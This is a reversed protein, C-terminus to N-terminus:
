GAVEWIEIGNEDYVKKFSDSNKLLFLLGEQERTWVLGKKMEQNIWIYKINYESLLASTNALRRSYLMTNYDVWISEHNPTKFDDMLVKNKSVYQIWFGYSHHSLVVDEPSAYSQLWDLSQKTPKDPMSVSVRDIYSLCSFILGCIIVIITLNKLLSLEWKIELLWLFGLSALLALVFNLYANGHARLFFLSLLFFLALAYFLLLRKKERWKTVFGIVALIINFLGFGVVAGFDSVFDTLINKSYLTRTVFDPYHYFFGAVLIFFCLLFCFRSRKKDYIGYFFLFLATIMANFFSFFINAIFLLSLWFTPQKRKQLFFYLALLSLFIAFCTPSSLTFSAIFAPSSVLILLTLLRMSLDLKLNKLLRHFLLLSLLGFVIPFMMSALEISMFGSAFALLVHYPNAKYPRQDFVFADSSQVGKHSIESAIRAHYYPESGMLLGDFRIVRVALPILLIALALLFAIYFAKKETLWKWKNYRM